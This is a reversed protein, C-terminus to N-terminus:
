KYYEDLSDAIATVIAEQYSDTTLRSAEDPCSLFGCEVILSTCPSQALIVYESNGKAERTNEPDVMNKLNSQILEALTKGENSSTYYFVQAGHVTPDSFSNQHISLLLNASSSAACAIREMLDSMKKNSAGADGLSIDSNRTLYVQYGREELNEKLLCAIQLNIDKENVGDSSVKGPDYGGHGPDIVIVPGKSAQHPTATPTSHVNQQRSRILLLIIMIIFLILM